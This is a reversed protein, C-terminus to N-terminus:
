AQGHGSGWSRRLERRLPKQNTNRPLPRVRVYIRPQKYRALRTAAHATLNEDAIPDAAVYFCSVVSVGPRVTVETVGVESLGPADAMVAEVALPSVRANGANMMDDSPGPNIIAGDDAMSATDGPLFWEGSFRDRTDGSRGFCHATSAFVSLM